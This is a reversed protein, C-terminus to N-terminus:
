NEADSQEKLKGRLEEIKANLREIEATDPRNKQVELIEASLRAITPVCGYGEYSPPCSKGLIDNLVQTALRLAQAGSIPRMQPAQQGMNLARPDIIKKGM